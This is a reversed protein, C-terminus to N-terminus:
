GEKNICLNGINITLIEFYKLSVITESKYDNRCKAMGWVLFQSTRYHKTVPSGTFSGEEKTM